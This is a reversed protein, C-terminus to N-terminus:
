REALGPTHGDCRRVEESVLVRSDLGPAVVAKAGASMFAVLLAPEVCQGCVVVCDRWLGVMGRVAHADLWMRPLTRQLLIARTQKGGHQQVHQSM